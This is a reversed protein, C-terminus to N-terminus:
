CPEPKWGYLWDFGGMVRNPPALKMTANRALAMAGQMHYIRGNRESAEAVKAVRTRRARDYEGLATEINGKRASVFSALTM